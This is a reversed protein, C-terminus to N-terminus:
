SSLIIKDIQNAISLLEVIKEDISSKLASITANFEDDGCKYLFPDVLSITINEAPNPFMRQVIIKNDLIGESIQKVIYVIFKYHKVIIHCIKDGIKLKSKLVVV